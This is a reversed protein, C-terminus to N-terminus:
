KLVMTKQLSPINLKWEGAQLSTSQSQTDISQRTMLKQLFIYLLIYFYDLMAEDHGLSGIRKM